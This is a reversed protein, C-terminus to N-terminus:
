GNRVASITALPAFAPLREGRLATPTIALVCIAPAAEAAVLPLDPGGVEGRVDPRPQRTAQHQRRAPGVAIRRRPSRAVGSPPGRGLPEGEAMTVAQIAATTDSLAGHARRTRRPRRRDDRRAASSVAATLRMGHVAIRITRPTVISTADTSFVPPMSSKM